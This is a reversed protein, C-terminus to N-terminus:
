RGYAGVGQSFHWEGSVTTFLKVNRRPGGRYDVLYARTDPRADVTDGKSLPLYERNTALYLHREGSEEFPVIWPLALILLAKAGIQPIVGTDRTLDTKVVGPYTHIFSTVPHARALEDMALSTMTIAHNVFNRMSHNSRLSLDDLIWLGEGRAGLVSIARSLRHSAPTRQPLLNVVFRMRAYYHLSLKKNLGEGTGWSQWSVLDLPTSSSTQRTYRSISTTIDDEDRPRMERASSM